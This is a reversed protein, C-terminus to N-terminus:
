ASVACENKGNELLDAQRDDVNILGINIGKITRYAEPASRAHSRIWLRFAAEEMRGLFPNQRQLHGFSQWISGDGARQTGTSYHAPYVIIDAHWRKVVMGISNWLHTSWEETKEALDPRGPSTLLLFDGTFAADQGVVYTVSGPSHGPTHLVDVVCRGIHLSMGDSVPVFAVPGRSEDYPSVADAPHLYYPVHREHAIRSAGSIYDAHVHTDAVAALTAGGQEIADLHAGFERPPDIILAKGASILIYSLAEKGIRDFQILQDVSPPCPLVRPVSLAMWATMGGKLSRASAGLRNLHAAVIRSDNGHGCMVVVPAGRDFGTESLTAWQLVESGVCHRVLESPIMGVDASTTGNAHARIDLFQLDKGTEIERVLDEPTVEPVTQATGINNSSSPSQM